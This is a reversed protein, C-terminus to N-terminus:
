EATERRRKIARKFLFNKMPQLSAFERACDRSCFCPLAEPVQNVDIDEFECNWCPVDESDYPGFISRFDDTPDDHKPM